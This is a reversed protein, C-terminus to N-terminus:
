CVDSGSPIGLSEPQRGRECMFRFKQDVIKPSPPQIVSYRLECQHEGVEASVIRSAAGVSLLGTAGPGVVRTGGLPSVDCELNGVRLVAPERLIIGTDNGQNYVFLGIGKGGSVFIPDDVELDIDARPLLYDCSAKGGGGIVIAAAVLAMFRPIPKNSFLANRIAALVTAVVSRVM